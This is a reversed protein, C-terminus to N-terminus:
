AAKEKESTVPQSALPLRLVVRTGHGQKSVLSLTGGVISARERMGMIGIASSANQVGPSLGVGNDSVSIICNGNLTRLAVQVRTARAHRQVNILAEQVVRYAATAAEQELPLAQALGDRAVVPCPLGTRASFGAAYNQIAGLLGLEDLMKPRLDTSIHQVVDLLRDLSDVLRGFKRGTEGPQRDALLSTEMRLAILDQTLQDHLERAVRGREEEHATIVRRALARYQREYATARAQLERRRSIDRFGEIVGALAGDGFFYPASTVYCPFGKGNLHNRNLTTHLTKREGDYIRQLRCADTHCHPNPFLDYCKRGVVSAPELGFMEAFTRNIRRITFNRDTVRVGVETSDFLAEYEALSTDEAPKNPKAPLRSATKQPFPKPTSKQM